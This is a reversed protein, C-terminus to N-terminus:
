EMFQLAMHPVSTEIHSLTDLLTPLAANYKQNRLISIWISPHYRVLMGLAYSAAFATAFKSLEIGCPFLQMVVVDGINHYGTIDSLTPADTDEALEFISARETREVPKAKKGVVSIVNELKFPPYVVYQNKKDRGGHHRLPFYTREPRWRFFSQHVDPIRSLLDLLAFESDTAPLDGKHDCNPISSNNRLKSVNDTAALLHPFTGSENIRIRLAEIEGGCKSLESGWGVCMLGHSEALGAERIKPDLFLILGRSISLVGYYTLLPRVSRDAICAAEFYARSQAIANCIEDAKGANLSGGHKLKYQRRVLESSEYNLLTQWAIRQQEDMAM